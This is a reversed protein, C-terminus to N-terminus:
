EAVVLFYRAGEPAWSYIESPIADTLSAYKEAVQDLDGAVDDLFTASQSLAMTSSMFLLLLIIFFQVRKM